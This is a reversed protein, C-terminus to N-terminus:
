CLRNGRDDFLVRGPGFLDRRCRLLHRCLNLVDHIRGRGQGVHRPSQVAEHFLEVQSASQSGSLRPKVDGYQMPVNSLYHVLM